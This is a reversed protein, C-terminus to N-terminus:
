IGGKEKRRRDFAFMVSVTVAIGTFLLWSVANATGAESYTFMEDYILMGVTYTSKVPNGGTLMYPANFEQFASITQLVLNIFLTDKIMPLTILFLRRVGGCGDVKASEYLEKPIENLANLFILMTSGFEWLRLLVIILVALRSDGYWSLRPLGFVSMFQNLLGDSRFIYQWMIVTALNAGLISPIYFATRFFGRFKIEMSLIVAVALSFLLKLPVLILAYRFTVKVAKVFDRNKLLSKYNELGVFEPPRINNYDTMGMFFSFLFPYLTFVAFGAIFPLILLLGTYKGTGVPNNYIRKSM